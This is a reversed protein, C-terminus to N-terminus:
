RLKTTSPPPPPESSPISVESKLIISRWNANQSIDWPTKALTTSEGRVHVKEPLLLVFQVKKEWKSIVNFPIGPREQKIEESCNAKSIHSASTLFTM